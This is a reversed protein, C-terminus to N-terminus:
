MKDPMEIGLLNMGKELIQGVFVSLSLRFNKADLTEAGLVKVESYFKHYKKALEYLYNAVLAPSYEKAAQAIIEPFQELGIILSKEFENIENYGSYDDVFKSEGSKRTISKIRVFANQIYPGTQGQLDVSEKPDFVMKKQPNVKLIFFKLAALGIKKYIEKREIDSIGTLEGREIAAKEAEDIVEKILDDADVVTGERSKMKGSPLEVMGYSLHFLGDSYPRNLRQLTEFLVKFHYDQENGVVYVMKDASYDKYRLDATGMDQTIYVSTGDSRLLIKRDMGADTLDIWVSNDADKIFVENKLGEEVINKGLLYTDSEYYIKDFEVGLNRYTVNFGELVWDNMKRWLSLTNQDKNEWDLLMKRAEFGLKSYSNFYDNKFKKFFEDKNVIENQSKFIHEAVESEQWSIYEENFKKEFLVYYNGVFFDSKINESQPSNQNGWKSWALMSKCIAIGRDNVIQTRIVRNGSFQLINSVSWGLLINRIHGLHLPKNTNPSSFEVIINKGTEPQSGYEKEKGISNLSEHWYKSSLTLNLFGKIVNYKDIFESEEVLKNGLIEGIEEPKKKFIPILPFLLLTYDGSFDKPTESINLKSQDISNEFSENIIRVIIKKIISLSM